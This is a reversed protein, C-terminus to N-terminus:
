KEHLAPWYVPSIQGIEKTNICATIYNHLIGLHIDICSNFSKLTSKKRRLLKGAMAPGSVPLCTCPCSASMVRLLEVARPPAAVVAVPTALRCSALCPSCPAPFLVRFAVRSCSTALPPRRSVARRRRCRRRRHAVRHDGPPLLSHRPWRAPESHEPPPLAM